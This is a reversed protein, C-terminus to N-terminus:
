RLSIVTGEGAHLRLHFGTQSADASVPLPLGSGIGLDTCHPYRGSVTIEDERIDRTHPNLVFLYRHRRKDDRLVLEFGNDACAAPKVGIATDLANYFQSQLEPTDFHATTVLVKGKGYTALATLTNGSADNTKWILQSAPHSTVQKESSM